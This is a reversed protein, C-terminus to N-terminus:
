YGRGYRYAYNDAIQWYAQAYGRNFGQRYDYGGVQYRSSGAPYYSVRALADRRGAIRGDKLGQNYARSYFARDPWQLNLAFVNSSGAAILFAAAMVISLVMTKITKINMRTRGQEELASNLKTKGQEM